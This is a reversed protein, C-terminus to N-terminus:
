CFSKNEEIDLLHNIQTHTHKFCSQYNVSICCVYRLSLVRDTMRQLIQASCCCKIHFLKIKKGVHSVDNGELTAGPRETQLWVISKIFATASLM